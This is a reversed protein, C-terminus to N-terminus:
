EEPVVPCEGVPLDDDHITPCQEEQSLELVFSADCECRCEDEIDAEACVPTVTASLTHTRPAAEGARRAETLRLELRYPQDDGDRRSAFTPCVPINAYNQLTDPFVPMGFGGDEPSAELEIPRADRGIFTNACDDFLGANMLARCTVNKARVGILTVKGGQPPLILPVEGGDVLDVVEGDVTRLVLAIEAEANPDGIICDPEEGEGEGEGPGIGDAECSSGLLSFVTLSAVVLLVVRKM